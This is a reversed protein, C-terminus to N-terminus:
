FGFVESLKTSRVCINLMRPIQPMSSKVAYKEPAPDLRGHMTMPAFYLLFPKNEKLCEEMYAAAKDAFLDTLFEGEPRQPVRSKNEWLDAACYYRSDHLNYGFYYDYGM